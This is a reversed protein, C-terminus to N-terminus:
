IDQRIVLEEYGSLACPQREFVLGDLVGIVLELTTRVICGEMLHGGVTHGTEDSISLHLHEGTSELTGSLSVIEFASQLVTVQPQAAYRIAAQSLSGVSSAVFAANLPTDRCLQRLSLLVDDGPLLRLAVFRASTQIVSPTM